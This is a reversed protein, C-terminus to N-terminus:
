DNIVCISIMKKCELCYQGTIEIETKITSQIDIIAEGEKFPEDSVDWYDGKSVAITKSKCVPCLSYGNIKILGNDFSINNIM